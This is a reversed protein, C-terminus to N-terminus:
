LTHPYWNKLHKLSAMSDIRHYMANASTEFVLALSEMDLKHRGHQTQKTAEALIALNLKHEDGYREALEKWHRVGEQQAAIRDFPKANAAAKKAIDAIDAANKDALIAATLDQGTAAIAFDLQKVQAAYRPAIGSQFASGAKTAVLNKRTAKLHAIKARLAVVRPSETESM